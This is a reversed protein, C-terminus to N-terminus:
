IQKNEKALAFCNSKLHRVKKSQKSTTHRNPLKTSKTFKKESFHKENSLKYVYKKNTAGSVCDVGQQALEM